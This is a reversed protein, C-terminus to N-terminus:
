NLVDAWEPHKRFQSAAFPCLPVIKKSQKRMDAVIQEILMQGYGRGRLADDVETHDIIVIKDGAKSFTAVAEGGETRLVYRGGTEGDEFDVQM